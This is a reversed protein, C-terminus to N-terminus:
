HEKHPSASRQATQQVIREFLNPDVSGYIQAKTLTGARALQSYADANLEPGVGRTRALWSQFESPPVAHVLFRMDSFGDGSFQASLGPYDGPREAMLNLRTTMGAMTYIMSGLQPVFFANMVTASTLAFEIPVGAPVVLQNVAAIKEDPYIFLWKWDLSVVEIRIPTADSALERAPDLQHSGTWAVGALLIVVMTPISWVVLEIEGSYSWDPRYAARTNSARYWWAFAITLVIVPVVVVLMIATANLMILREASAVPGQPDLVGAGRCSALLSAAALAAFIRSRLLRTCDHLRGHSKMHAQWWLHLKM